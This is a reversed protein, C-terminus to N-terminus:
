NKCMWIKDEIEMYPMKGYVKIEGAQYVCEGIELPIYWGKLMIMRFTDKGGSFRIYFRSKDGMYSDSVTGRVCLYKGKDKITVNTWDICYSTPDTATPFIAPPSSPTRTVIPAVNAKTPYTIPKSASSKQKAQSSGFIGFAIIVCLIALVAITFITVRDSKKGSGRARGCYACSGLSGQNIIGCGSCRWKETDNQASVESIENPQITIAKSGIGKLNESRVSPDYGCGNCNGIDNEMGCYPCNWHHAIPTPIPQADHNSLEQIEISQVEVITSPESYINERSKKRPATKAWVTYRWIGGISVASFIITVILDAGSGSNLFKMWAPIMAVTCTLWIYAQIGGWLASLFKIEYRSQLYLVGILGFLLYWIM